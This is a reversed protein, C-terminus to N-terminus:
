KPEKAQHETWAARAAERAKRAEELKESATTYDDLFRSIDRDLADAFPHPCHDAPGARLEVRVVTSHSRIAYCEALAHRAEAVLFAAEIYARGKETLDAFLSHAITGWAVRDDFAKSEESRANQDTEM